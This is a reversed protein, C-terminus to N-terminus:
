LIFHFPCPFNQFFFFLNRGQSSMESFKSIHYLIWDGIVRAGVMSLTPQARFGFYDNLGDGPTSINVRNDERYIVQRQGPLWVMDGFEHLRGWVAVKEAIDADDRKVFKVSRKFQPELALTVQLFAHVHTHVVFSSKATM